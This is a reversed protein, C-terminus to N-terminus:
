SSLNSVPHSVEEYVIGAFCLVEFDSGLICSRAFENNTDDVNLSYDVIIAHSGYKSFGAMAFVRDHPDTCNRSSAQWVLELLSEIAERWRSDHAHDRWRLLDHLMYDIHSYSINEQVMKYKAPGGLSLVSRSDAFVEEWCTFFCDALLYAWELRVSGCM